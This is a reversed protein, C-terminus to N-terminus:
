FSIWQRSYPLHHHEERSLYCDNPTTRSESEIRNAIEDRDHNFPTSGTDLLVNVMRGISANSTIVRVICPATPAVMTRSSHMMLHYKRVRRARTWRAGRLYSSLSRSHHAMWGCRATSNRSAVRRQPFEGEAKYPSLIEGLDRVQQLRSTGELPM